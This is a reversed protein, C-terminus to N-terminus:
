AWPRSSYPAKPVGVNTKASPETMYRRISGLAGASFATSKEVLEDAGRLPAGVDVLHLPRM